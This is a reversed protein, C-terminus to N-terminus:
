REQTHRQSTRQNQDLARNLESILSMLKEPDREKSAQEALHHWDRRNTCPWLWLGREVAVLSSRLRFGTQAIARVFFPRCPNTDDGKQSNRNNICLFGLV